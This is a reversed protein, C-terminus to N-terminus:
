SLVLLLTQPAHLAHLQRNRELKRPLLVFCCSAFVSVTSMEINMVSVANVVRM